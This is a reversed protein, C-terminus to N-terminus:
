VEELAHRLVAGRVRQLQHVPGGRYGRGEVLLVDGGLLPGIRETQTVSYPTGDPSSGAAEGVWEGRMFAFRDMAKTLETQVAAVDPPHVPPPAAHARMALSVAMAAWLVRSSKPKLKM